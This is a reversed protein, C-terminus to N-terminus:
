SRPAAPEARRSGRPSSSRWYSFRRVDLAIVTAEPQLPLERRYQPYKRRLARIAREQEDGDQLVRASGRFLVYWLRRWDEDYHDVLFSAQPTRSINRVRALRHPDISKPKADLAHYVTDGAIVFCVPVLGPGAANSSAFHGVRASSVLRRVSPPIAPM